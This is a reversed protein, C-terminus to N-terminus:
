AVTTRDQHQKASWEEHLRKQKEWEKLLKKRKSKTVEQGQADKTPIGNEDWELYEETRYMQLHSTKAKEALLRKKEADEAERKAKAEMLAAAASEREKRDALLSKDVPRVLAGLSPRDELYIGLDWLHTDRLQDCLKLLDKASAREDALKKVNQRFQDFVDEYPKSSVACTVQSVLSNANEALQAVAAHDLSGSRAQQRISDRLQSVPYIYPQAPVPIDIGSWGVRDRDRLDGEADLGFITVIRTIWRAIPLVTKDSLGGALNFETILNSIIRMAVPTNFSDCLATNLDIKAKKLADLLQENKSEVADAGKSGGHSESQTSNSHRVVDMAKMFFNNLKGEWAATSKMLEETIEIRDQWAGLLFCIRLSRSSWEPQSLATRITTFNKLSKSMKLGQISLHGTHLFYNTWPASSGDSSWYATSQALENDHHPFRLDEGGTHIDIEKGLVESAMVSCEIHWGPRGPGWPSPWSPEGPKSAKWLAFDSDNRKVATKSSLSGEGDAQLSRDNRNWPELRAYHHGAKEFAEINFYISGDSTPYGFGNRIIKEIFGVIEPVYETVRTLIDPDLVNLSHMDDFFREEFRQTLRTFISHDRSDINARYLSDLYPLLIDEAKPYFESSKGPTQLAEAASAASKIHMKLKAEKDGPTGTGEGDSLAQGELVRKYAKDAEVAFREASTDPSLLPLNKQLYQKFAADATAIVSAAVPGDESGGHEQKLQTLLHQQRGRLIIKDDIDTINMVFKVRFGFYDKMIRRLIDVSVFNRAHGLHAEDYVTPGCTYWTVLKGEPDATIFVDKRRTLSNFIKLPPLQTNPLVAKPPSWPPQQLATSAM